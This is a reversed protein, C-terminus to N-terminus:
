NNKESECLEILKRKDVTFYDCAFEVTGLYENYMSSLKKIFAQNRSCHTTNISKLCYNCQEAWYINTYDKMKCDSYNKLQIIYM